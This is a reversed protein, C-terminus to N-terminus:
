EGGTITMIAEVNCVPQVCYRTPTAAIQWSELFRPSRKQHVPIPSAHSREPCVYSLRHSGRVTMGWRTLLSHRVCKVHELLQSWLAM